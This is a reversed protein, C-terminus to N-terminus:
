GGDQAYRLVSHITNVESDLVEINAQWYLSLHMKVVVDSLLGSYIPTSVISAIWWKDTDIDSDSRRVGVSTRSMAGAFSTKRAGLAIKGPM